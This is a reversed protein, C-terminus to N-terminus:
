FIIHQTYNGPFYADTRPSSSHEASIEPCPVAFTGPFGAASSRPQLDGTPLTNCPGCPRSWHLFM